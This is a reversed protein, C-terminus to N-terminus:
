KRNLFYRAPTTGLNKKFMNIFANVSQYGVEESVRQVTMGESLFRMALILRLQQYWQKYTLGTEKLVLRELTRDSMALYKAWDTLSKRESPKEMLKHSLRKLRLENPIPWYLNEKEMDTLEQLLVKVLLDARDGKNYPAPLTTLHLIMEKVMPSIKLTCPHQPLEVTGPEILLFCIESGKTAKNSHVVGSPIWVASNTPAMWIGGELICTIGGHLAVVLQGKRHQHAPTEISKEISDFLLSFVSVSESDLNSKSLASHQYM